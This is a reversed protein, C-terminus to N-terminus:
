VILYVFFYGGYFFSANYGAFLCLNFVGHPVAHGQYLVGTKGGPDVAHRKQAIVKKFCAAEPAPDPLKHLVPALFLADVILGPLYLIHETLPMKCLIYFDDGGVVRYFPQFERVQHASGRQVGVMVPAAPDIGVTREKADYFRIM